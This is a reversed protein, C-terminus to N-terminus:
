RKGFVDGAFAVKQAHNRMSAAIIRESRIKILKNFAGRVKFSGTKKLNEAKIYVSANFM